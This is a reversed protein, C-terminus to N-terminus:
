NRDIDHGNGITYDRVLVQIMGNSYKVRYTRIKVLLEFDRRLIQKMCMITSYLVHSFENPPFLVPRQNLTDTSKPHGRLCNQSYIYIEQLSIHVINQRDSNCRCTHEHDSKKVVPKKKRFLGGVRGGGEREYVANLQHHRTDCTFLLNANNINKFVTHWSLIIFWSIHM